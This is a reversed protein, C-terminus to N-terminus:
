FRGALNMGSTTIPASPDLRLRLDSASAPPGLRFRLRWGAACPVLRLRWGSGFPDLRRPPLFRCYNPDSLGVFLNYTSTHSWKM